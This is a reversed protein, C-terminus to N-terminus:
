KDIRQIAADEIAAPYSKIGYVNAVQDAISLGRNGIGSYADIM